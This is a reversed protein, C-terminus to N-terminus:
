LELVGGERSGVCCLRHVLKKEYIVEQEYEGCLGVGDGQAKAKATPNMLREQLARKQNSVREGM